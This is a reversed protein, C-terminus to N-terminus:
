YIKEFHKILLKGIIGILIGTIVGAILLMPLYGLVATDRMVIVAMIIQGINHMVAGAVSIGIISLIKSFRKFLFSMISASLVGGTISFLFVTIGGTFLSSLLCRILVVLLVQQYGFFVIVILTVINALGLKIGPVPVPIPLPIWAEIISLVLAQSVLIALMVMKRTRKM